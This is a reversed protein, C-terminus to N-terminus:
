RKELPQPHAANQLGPDQNVSDHAEPQPPTEVEKKVLYRMASRPVRADNPVEEGPLYFTSGVMVSCKFRMLAMTAPRALPPTPRKWPQAIDDGRAGCSFASVPSVARLKRSRDSAAPKTVPWRRTTSPPRPSPHSVYEALTLGWFGFFGTNSKGAGQQWDAGMSVCAKPKLSRALAGSPWFCNGILELSSEPFRSSLPAITM